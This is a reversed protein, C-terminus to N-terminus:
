SQKVHMVKNLSVFNLLALLKFSKKFNLAKKNDLRSSWHVGLIIKTKHYIQIRYVTNYGTHQIQRIYGTNRFM